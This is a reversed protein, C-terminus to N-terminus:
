GCVSPQTEVAQLFTEEQDTGVRHPTSPPSTSSGFQLLGKEIVHKAEYQSHRASQLEKETHHQREQRIGYKAGTAGRGAKEQSRRESRPGLVPRNFSEHGLSYGVGALGQLHMVHERMSPTSEVPVAILKAKRPPCSLSLPEKDPVHTSEM